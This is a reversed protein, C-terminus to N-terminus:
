VLTLLPRPMQWHLGTDSLTATVGYPWAHNVPHHGFPLRHHLPIALPALWEALIAHSSETPEGQRTFSGLCVGELWHTNISTLLQYFYREIRYDAEGVEELMLLTPRELVLAGPTGCLAALTALNGGRLTGTAPAHPGAYHATPMHGCTETCRTPLSCLSQWRENTTEYPWPAVLALETAVPAHLAAIGHRYFAELLVTVDSYGILPRQPHRAIRAWDILPLLHDAGYGGRLCWVADIDDREYAAHLDQVRQEATGALYHHRKLVHDGVVVDVGLQGLRQLTLACREENVAGSPAILAVRLPRDSFPFFRTM